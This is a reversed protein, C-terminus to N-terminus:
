VQRTWTRTVAVPAFGLRAYLQKPPEDAHADLFVADCGEARLRATAAAIFASMLGRGRREPLTFLSEILGLGNPCPVTMGYGADVGGEVLLWFDCPDLRRRMADLLGAAVADDHAGTRKGERHDATVLAAFRDWAAAGVREFTLGPVDAVAALRDAVMEILTVNARFGALALAAEVEPSTLADVVVVQGGSPWHTALAAFVAAADADRGAQVWNAEWTHPHAPTAVVTVGGATIPDSGLTRYWRRAAAVRRADTTTM